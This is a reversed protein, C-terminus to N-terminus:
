ERDVCQVSYIAHGAAEIPAVVRQLYWTFDTFRPSGPVKLADRVSFSLTGGLTGTPPWFVFHAFTTENRWGLMVGVVMGQGYHADM